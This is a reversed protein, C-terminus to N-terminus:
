YNKSSSTGPLLEIVNRGLRVLKKQEMARLLRGIAERHTHLEDAIQQQTIELVRTNLAKSREELYHLLQKDMNSFAILDIVQILEAFRQQYTSSIFAKWEPFRFWDETKNVPIMLLSAEDEALAKVMSRNGSQCCTVSMACTQGPYLHYLFTEKGEEDQRLIRISGKLVIPIFLIEAGPNILVEDKVLQKYRAHLNIEALLEKDTFITSALNEMNKFNPTESTM